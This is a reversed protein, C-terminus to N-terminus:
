SIFEYFGRENVIIGNDDYYSYRNLRLEGVKGHGVLKKIKILNKYEDEWFEGHLEKLSNKVQEPVDQFLTLCNTCQFCGADNIGVHCPLCKSVGEPNWEMTYECVERPKEM